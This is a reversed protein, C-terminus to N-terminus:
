RWRDGPHRRLPGPRREARGAPRGARDAPRLPQFPGRLLQAGGGRPLARLARGHAGPQHRPRPEGPPLPCFRLLASGELDGPNTFRGPQVRSLGLEQHCHLPLPSLRRLRATIAEDNEPGDADFEALRERWGAAAARRLPQEALGAGRALVPRLEARAAAPRAAVRRSLRHDGADPAPGAPGPAPGPQPHPLRAGAAALDAPRDGAALAAAPRRPRRPLPAYPFRDPATSARWGPASIAGTM